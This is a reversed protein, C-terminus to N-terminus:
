EVQIVLWRQHSKTFMISAPVIVLFLNFDKEM